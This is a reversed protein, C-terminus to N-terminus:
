RRAAARTSEDRREADLRNAKPAKERPERTWLKRRPHREAVHARKSKSM